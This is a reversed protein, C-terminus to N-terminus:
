EVTGGSWFMTCMKCACKWLGSNIFDTAGDVKIYDNM